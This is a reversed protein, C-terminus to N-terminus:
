ELHLFQLTYSWILAQWCAFVSHKLRCDQTMSRQIKDITCSDHESAQTTRWSPEEYGRASTKGGTFSHQMCHQMNRIFEDTSQLQFTTAQTIKAM